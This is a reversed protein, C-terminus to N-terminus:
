DEVVDVRGKLRYTAAYLISEFMECMDTVTLDDNPLQVTYTGYNNELVLKTAM